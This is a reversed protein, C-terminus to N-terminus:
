AARTTGQRVTGAFRDLEVVELEPFGHWTRLYAKRTLVDPCAEVSQTMLFTM